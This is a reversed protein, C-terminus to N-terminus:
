PEQPDTEPADAEAPAPVEAAAAARRRKKDLLYAALGALLTPPLIWWASVPRKEEGGDLAQIALAIEEEPEAAGTEPLAATEPEGADEETLVPAATPTVDTMDYLATKGDLLRFYATLAYYAQETAMGDVGMGRLHSFGGGEVYFACLADVVSHGNKIFRPDSGADIGLASLAVLIQSISESTPTLGEGSGFTSYSGDANQMVSLTELARDVAAKVDERQSYYPALSQLCMGTIDSDSQEGTLAWGGDALQQSLLYDIIKERTTYDAAEPNEPLEYRGSDMAILAWIPGNIGQKKVYDLDTLGMLLNHGGVDTVDYGLSTLVLVTRSNDTSKARHMQEKENISALVLEVMSRYFGDSVPRDSRAFGLATWQASADMEGLSEIYKATQEYIDRYGSTAELSALRAEAKELTELNEVLLQQLDSLAEYAKRAEAIAASLASADDEAMKETLADILAEVASAATKDEETADELAAQKELEKLAAEADLLKQYNTVKSRQSYSTLDDYAKRAAEVAARSKLTVPSPIANILKIVKDAAAQDADNYGESGEEKTYDDTYHFVIVDGNKLYQQAVGLLPHHGNLTYMWGSNAGNTFEALNKGKYTLGAVYITGRSNTTTATIGNEQMVTQMVDWVTDNSDVEYKKAAVWTKLGGMKLGHVKGDSDSDHVNDGLISFTVRIKGAPLKVTVSFTGSTTGYKMTITKKGPESTDLKSLTVEEPAPTTTSGDSWTVTYVAGTMDLTEGTVYEKKYDGSVAISVTFPKSPIGCSCLKDLDAGLPDDDRQHNTRAINYYSSDKNLAYKIRDIDDEATDFCYIQDPWDPVTKWGMPRVSGDGYLTSDVYLVGGIGRSTGCDASFMNNEIVTYRNLSRYYGLIAGVYSGGSVSGNFTNGRIYAIGNDWAQWIGGESGFIGGVRSGGKVTGDCACNQICVARANPATFHDYGSGVIGGVNSGTASVTGHFQSGSISFDGMSTSKFGVLGGVNNVGYVTAYSVCGSMTGNFHGAFSGIDSQKKDYGITVGSEVTCNTFTVSNESSTQSYENGSGCDVLGGIFGSRLTSTGSKITVSSFTITNGINGSYGGGPGYDVVYNKVFGDGAIKPGYLVMNKVVADRVFGFLPLGGSPVTLQHGDGDLTGSFPWLNKGDGASTKGPQLCGIPTWGSPLTIDATMKFHKGTYDAGETNM